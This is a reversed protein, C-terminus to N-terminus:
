GGGNGRLIFYLFLYGPFSVFATWYAIERNRYGKNGVKDIFFLYCVLVYFFTYFSHSLTYLLPSYSFFNPTHPTVM